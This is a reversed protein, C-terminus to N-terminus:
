GNYGGNLNTQVILPQKITNPSELTKEKIWCDTCIKQWDGKQVFRCNCTSCRIINGLNEYEFGLNEVCEICLNFRFNKYSDQYVGGNYSRCSSCRM